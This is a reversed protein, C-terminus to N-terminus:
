ELDALRIVVATANDRSGAALAEAVLARAAAEASEARRVVRAADELSLVDWM